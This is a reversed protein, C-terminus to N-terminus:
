RAPGPIVAPAPMTSLNNVVDLVRDHWRVLDEIAQAQVHSRVTGSLTAIGATYHVRIADSPLHTARAVYGCLAQEVENDTRAEAEVGLNNDIRSLGSAQRAAAEAAQREHTSLATGSLHVCGDSVRVRIRDAAGAGLRTIATGVRRVTAEDNGFSDHSVRIENSVHLGPMVVAARESAAHKTEYCAAHGRLVVHDAMVDVSLDDIHLGQLAKRISNSTTV